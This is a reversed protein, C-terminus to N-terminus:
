VFIAAASFCIIAMLIGTVADIVTHQKTFLTSVIISLAVAAFLITYGPSMEGCCVASLFVLFSMSCHLSPMCNVGKYSFFYVLKLMWGDHKARVNEPRKFTTPYIVYIIISLIVDAIWAAIYVSWDGQSCYYLKIPFFFILPFWMVYVLTFAPIVPIKKDIPREVNHPNKQIIECGFYLIGQIMLLVSEFIIIEKISM